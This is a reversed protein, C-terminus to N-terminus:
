WRWCFFRQQATRQQRRNPKLHDLKDHRQRQRLQRRRGGTGGKSLIWLFLLYNAFISISLAIITM